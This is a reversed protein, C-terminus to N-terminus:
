SGYRLRAVAGHGALENRAYRAPMTPSTWRGAQQCEPLSAGSRVLSQASGVRLSHGSAGEIGLVDGARQRIVSRFSQPSLRAGVSGGRHLRRFLAGGTMDAGAETAAAIWAQVRAVTPAGLHLAAGEGTQDTKSRRVTVTGAGSDDIDLDDIDLASAEATRLMADSMVAVIAADRLGAVSGGGNAAAQAIADAADWGIGAAQKPPSAQDRRHARMVVECQPGVPDVLGATRAAFRVAAVTQALTSPGLGDAAMSAFAESLTSDSMPQGDLRDQVSRLARRYNRITSPALARGAAAVAAPSWPALDGAASSMSTSTRTSVELAM